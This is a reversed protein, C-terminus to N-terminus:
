REALAELREIRQSTTPYMALVSLPWRHWASEDRRTAAKELLGIVARTSTERAAHRDAAHVKEVGRRAALAYLGACAAGLLVSASAGIFGAFPAFSAVALLAAVGAVVAPGAVHSFPQYRNRVLAAERALLAEREAPSLSAFFWEDVVLHRDWPLGAIEAMGFGPAEAATWSRRVAVGNRACTAVADARLGEPMARTRTKLRHFYPRAVLAVLVVSLFWAATALVTVPLSWGAAIALVAAYLLGVSAVFLGAAAALTATRPFRSALSPGPESAASSQVPNSM